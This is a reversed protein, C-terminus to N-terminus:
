IIALSVCTTVVIGRAVAPRTGFVLALDVIIVVMAWARVSGPFAAGSLDVLMLAATACVLWAM